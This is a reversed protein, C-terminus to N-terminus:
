THLGVDIKMSMFSSHHCEKDVAARLCAPLYPNDCRLFDIGSVREVRSKFLLRYICVHYGCIKSLTEAARVSLRCIYAVATIEIYMM